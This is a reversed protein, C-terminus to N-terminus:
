AISLEREIFEVGEEKFDELTTFQKDAANTIQNRNFSTLADFDEHVILSRFPVKKKQFSLCSIVVKSAKSNDNVGFLFLPKASPVPIAYDVILQPDNTPCVHRDLNYKSFYEVMFGNLYEYFMSKANERSLIDINSVKAILQSYQFVSEAAHEHNTHILIEGDDLEGLNSDVIRHLISQKNETGLDFTYSVRMLTNGFDRIVVNDGQEELYISYMDGDEHFFPAYLRYTNQAVPELAMYRGFCNSLSEQITM